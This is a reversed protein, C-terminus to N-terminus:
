AACARPLLTFWDINTLQFEVVLEDFRLSLEEDERM